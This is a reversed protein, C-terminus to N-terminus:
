SASYAYGCIEQARELDDQRDFAEFLVCTLLLRGHQYYPKTVKQLNGVLHIMEDCVDQDMQYIHLKNLSQCLLRVNALLRMTLRYFAMHFFPKKYRSIGYLFSECVGNGYFCADQM